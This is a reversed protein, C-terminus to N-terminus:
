PNKILNPINVICFGSSSFKFMPDVTCLDYVKTPADPFDSIQRRATAKLRDEIEQPGLKTTAGSKQHAAILAAAAGSVHPAAYSTGSHNDERILIKPNSTTSYAAINEGPAVLDVTKSYTSFRSYPYSHYDHVPPPVINLKIGTSGVSILGAISDSFAAPYVPCNYRWVVKNTPDLQKLKSTCYLDPGFKVDPRRLQAPDSDDRSNGAAAVVVSGSNVVDRIAGEIIPSNLLSGISLNIVDAKVSAAHCLGLVVSVDLCTGQSNCVKIPIIEANQVISFNQGLTASEISSIIGAVGTGHGSIDHSLPNSPNKKFKFDDSVNTSSNKPNAYNYNIWGPNKINVLNAGASVSIGGSVVRKGTNVGTDLVAIRVGTADQIPTKVGNYSEYIEDIGDSPRGIGDPGIFGLSNLAALINPKSVGKPTYSSLTSIISSIIDVVFKRKFEENRKKADPDVFNAMLIDEGCVDSPTALGDTQILYLDKKSITISKYEPNQVELSKKATLFLNVLIDILIPKQQATIENANISITLIIQYEVFDPYKTISSNESFVGPRMLDFSADPKWPAKIGASYAIAKSGTNNNALVLSLLFVLIALLTKM